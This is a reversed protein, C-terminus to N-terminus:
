FLQVNSVSVVHFSIISALMMLPSQIGYLLRATRNFYLM